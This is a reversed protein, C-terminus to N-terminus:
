ISRSGLSKGIEYHFGKLLLDLTKPTNKWFWIALFKKQHWIKGVCEGTNKWWM